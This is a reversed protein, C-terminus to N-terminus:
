HPLLRGASRLDRDGRDGRQRERGNGAGPWSAPGVRDQAATLEEASVPRDSVVSAVEKLLEPVSEKTKDTQVPAYMVWLRQRRADVAFSGAIDSCPREAAPTSASCSKWRGSLISM